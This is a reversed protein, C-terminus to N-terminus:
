LLRARHPPPPPPPGPRVPGALGGAGGLLGAGGLVTARGAPRGPLAGGALRAKRALLAAGDAQREGLADRGLGDAWRVARMVGYLLFPTVAADYIVSSPLVQRVASWTVQPDRLVVGLAAYLAEGAAAGAM